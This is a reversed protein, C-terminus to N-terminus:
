LSTCHFSIGEARQRPLNCTPLTSLQVQQLFRPSKPLLPSFIAWKQHRIQAQDKTIMFNGFRYSYNMLENNCYCCFHIPHEQLFVLIEYAKFM